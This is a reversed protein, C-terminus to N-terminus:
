DNSDGPCRSFERNQPIYTWCSNSTKTSGGDFPTITVRTIVFVHLSGKEIAEVQASTLPNITDVSSSGLEAQPLIDFSEVVTTDNWNVKAKPNVSTDTIAIAFRINRISVASNSKNTFVLNVRLPEGASLKILRVVFGLYVTTTLTM